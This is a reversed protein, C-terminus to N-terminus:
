PAVDEIRMKALLERTVEEVGDLPDAPSAQVMIGGRGLQEGDSLIMYRWWATSVGPFCVARGTLTPAAPREYTLTVTLPGTIDRDPGLGTTTASGRTEGDPTSV